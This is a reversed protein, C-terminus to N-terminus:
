PYIQNVFDIDPPQPTFYIENNPNYGMLAILGPNSIHGLSQGHGAEHGAYAHYGNTTEDYFSNGEILYRSTTTGNCYPTSQGGRSDDMYYSNFITPGDVSFYYYVKTPLLTWDSIAAEFAIRWSTGPNQLNDGWKYPIAVYGAPTRSWRCPPVDGESIIVPNKIVFPFYVKNNQVQMTSSTLSKGSVSSVMSFTVLSILVTVILIMVKVLIKDIRFM